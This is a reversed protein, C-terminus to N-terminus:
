REDPTVPAASHPASNRNASRRATRRRRQRCKRPLPSTLLAGSSTRTAIASAQTNSTLVPTDHSHVPTNSSHVTAHCPAPQAPDYIWNMRSGFLTQTVDGGRLVVRQGQRALYYHTGNPGVLWWLAAKISHHLCQHRTPSLQGRLTLRSAPDVTKPIADVLQQVTVLHEM